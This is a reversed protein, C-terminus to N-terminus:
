INTIDVSSLPVTFYFNHPLCLEWFVSLGTNLITDEYGQLMSQWFHNNSKLNKAIKWGWLHVMQFM